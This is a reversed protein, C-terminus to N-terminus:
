QMRAGSRLSDAASMAVSRAYFPMSVSMQELVASEIDHDLDRRDFSAAYTSPAYAVRCDCIVGLDQNLQRLAEIEDDFERLTLKVGNGPQDPLHNWDPVKFLVYPEAGDVIGHFNWRAHIYNNKLVPMSDARVFWRSFEAAKEPTRQDCTIDVLRELMGLRMSFQATAPDILNSIDLGNNHGLWSVALGINLDLQAIIQTLRGLRLYFLDHLEDLSM